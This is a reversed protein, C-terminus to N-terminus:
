WGLLPRSGLGDGSRGRAIRDHKAGPDVRTRESHVTTQREPALGARDDVAPAHPADEGYARTARHDLVQRQAGAPLVHHLDVGADVDFLDFANAQAPQEHAVHEIADVGLACVPELHAVAPERTADRGEVLAALAVADM